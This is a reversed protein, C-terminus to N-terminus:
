YIHSNYFFDATVVVEDLLQADPSLVVDITRRNGVVIEQKAYGVYQFVLTDASIIGDLSYRGDIDSITGSSTGKVLITVGPLGLQDESSIITGTITKEQAFLNIAFFLGLFVLLIKNM